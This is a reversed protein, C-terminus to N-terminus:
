YGTHGGWDTRPHKIEHEIHNLVTEVRRSERQMLYRETPTIDTSVSMLTKLEVLYKTFMAYDSPLHRTTMKDTGM